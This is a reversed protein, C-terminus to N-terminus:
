LIEFFIANIYFYDVNNGTPDYMHSLSVLLEFESPTPEYEYGDGQQNQLTM